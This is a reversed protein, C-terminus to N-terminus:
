WFVSNTMTWSEAWFYVYRRASLDSKGPKTNTGGSRKRAPWPAGDPGARGTCRRWPRRFTAHTEVSKAGSHLRCRVYEIAM